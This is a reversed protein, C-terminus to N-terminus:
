QRGEAKVEGAGTLDGNLVGSLLGRLCGPTRPPIILSVTQTLLGKDHEEYQGPAGAM